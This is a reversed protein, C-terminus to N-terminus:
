GQILWVMMDRGSRNGWAYYPILTLVAEERSSEEDFRYLGSGSLRERRAPVRLVPAYDPIGDAKGEEARRIESPRVRYDWLPAPNDAEEACYVFPGRQVAVRGADATVERRAKVAMVPTRFSLLLTEGPRMGRLDLYGGPAPVPIDEGNRQACVGAAWWPIRVKLDLTLSVSGEGDEVSIEVRNERPFDTKQTLTLGGARVEGAAFLNLYLIRREEDWAWVYRQVSGITRAFNPPCCACGFWAPRKARVDALGPNKECFDARVELPNVYFFHTGDQSAGSLIGNYLAREIVDIYEMKPETKFMEWAFYVLAIAACTEGYMTDNPLDYAATFAEGFPTSGVGGTLFLKRQSVDEWISRCAQALEPDGTLRVLGAMGAALYMQRVAHGVATRQNKPQAYSQTYERGFAETGAPLWGRRINEATQKEYFAPDEGRVRLFFGALRLGREDGTHEYYRLLGIEVEPHGDAGRIQGEGYGFNRDLNDVIKEAIRRAKPSGVAEDYATMAELCHGMCYLEHSRDLLRYKKEPAEIQFYTSLYGDEEQAAAILDVVQEAQAQLGADPTIELSYAAAELWKYVDSDQFYAGYHHGESQGAAIRLNELAGSKEEPGEGLEDNLVRLQCPLTRTRILELYPKWFGGTMRSDRLSIERLM